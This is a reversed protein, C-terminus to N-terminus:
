ENSVGIAAFLGHLHASLAKKERKKKEEPWHPATAGGGAGGGQNRYQDCMGPGRKKAYAIIHLAYSVMRVRYGPVSLITKM